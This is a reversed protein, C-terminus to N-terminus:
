KSDRDLGAAVAVVYLHRETTSHFVMLCDGVANNSNCEIMAVLLNPQQQPQPQRCVGILLLCKPDFLVQKPISVPLVHYDTLTNELVLLAEPSVTRTLMHCVQIPFQRGGTMHQHIQRAIDACNERANVDQTLTCHILQQQMEYLEEGAVVREFVRQERQYANVQHHHLAPPLNNSNVPRPLFQPRQYQM